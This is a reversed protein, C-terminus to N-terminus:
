KRRPLNKMRDSKRGGDYYEFCDNFNKVLFECISKKLEKDFYFTMLERGYKDTGHCRYYPLNDIGSFTQQLIATAKVGELTDHEAADLKMLRVRLKLFIKVRNSSAVIVPQVTSSSGIKRSHEERLYDLPLCVGVDVTDGDVIKLIRCQGTLGLFSFEGINGFNFNKISISRILESRKKGDKKLNLFKLFRTLLTVPEIFQDPLVENMPISNLEAFRELEEVKGAVRYKEIAYIKEKPKEGQIVRNTGLNYYGALPFKYFQGSLNVFPSGMGFSVVPRRQESEM